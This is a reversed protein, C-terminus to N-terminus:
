PMSYIAMSSLCVCLSDNRQWFGESVLTTKPPVYTTTQQTCGNEGSDEAGSDIWWWCRCKGHVKSSLMWEGSYGKTFLRKQHRLPRFKKTNPALPRSPVSAHETTLVSHQHQTPLPAQISCLASIPQLSDHNQHCKQPASQEPAWSAQSQHFSCCLWMQHTEKDSLTIQSKM